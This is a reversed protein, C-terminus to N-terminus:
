PNLNVEEVRFETSPMKNHMQLYNRHNFADKEKTFAAINESLTYNIGVQGMIYDKVVIYVAQEYDEGINDPYGASKSFLRADLESFYGM